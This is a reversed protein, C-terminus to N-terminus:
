PRLRWVDAGAFSGVWLDGFAFNAVFPGAGVAIRDAVANTAPDIRVVANELRLPIWVSGDPAVSGDSAGAGAHMTAVVAKSGPDVRVVEGSQAAAWVGGDSAALWAPAEIKVAVADVANSHPDIRFVKTGHTAGVWLHGRAVAFGAAGPVRLRKVVKGRVPDIRSVVDSGNDSSWVSGFAFAVDYPRSGVPIREVVRLRRTDIKEIANTGYGDVWLAGGGVALGCPTPGVDIRATVRNTRPDVRTVTSSGYNAVWLSGRAAVMVCPQRGTGVKAVVPPAAAAPAVAAALVVAVTVISRFPQM